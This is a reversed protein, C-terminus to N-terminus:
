TKDGGTRKRGDRERRRGRSIIKNRRRLLISADMSQEEKKPKMHETLQIIPIRLKIALLEKENVVYWTHEKTVPNGWESHYKKTGYM